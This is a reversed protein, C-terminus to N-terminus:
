GREKSAPGHGKTRERQRVGARQRERRGLGPALVAVRPNRVADLIRPAVDLQRQGIPLQSVWNSASGLADRLLPLVDVPAPLPPTEGEVLTTDVRITVDWWLIEFTAKATLHLPRPGALTGEVRVKFLNTSGRKLQLQAYFAALLIATLAIVLLAIALRLQAAVTM